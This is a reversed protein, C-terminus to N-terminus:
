VQIRGLTPENPNVATKSPVRGPRQQYAPRQQHQQQAYPPRPAAAAAAAAQFPPVPMPPGFGNGMPPPAGPMLPAPMTPGHGVAIVSHGVPHHGGRPAGAAGPSSAPSQSRPQLGHAQLFAVGMHDFFTKCFDPQHRNPDYLGGGHTDCWYHWADKFNLSHRQGM